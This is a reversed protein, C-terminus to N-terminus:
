VILQIGYLSPTVEMYPNAFNIPSIVPVDTSKGQMQPIQPPKSSQKPLVMPLFTMGGSGTSTSVNMSINTIRPAASVAPPAINTKTSITPPRMGGGKPRTKKKLIEDKLYKNFDEIVKSFETSVERQYESVSFLKRVAQTFLTWLRGANDNIDKLLPRFMMASATRIVEEGPALMARVSDVNGSGTGGVTGGLSMGSRSTFLKVGNAADSTHRRLQEELAQQPTRKPINRAGQGLNAFRAQLPGAKVPYQNPNGRLFSARAAGRLGFGALVSLVTGYIIASLEPEKRIGSLTDIGGEFGSINQLRRRNWEQRSM